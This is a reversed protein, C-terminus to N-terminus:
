KLTVARSTWTFTMWLSISVHFIYQVWCLFVCSFIYYSHLNVLSKAFSITSIYPAKNISCGKYREITKQNKMVPSTWIDTTQTKSVMYSSMLWFTSCGSYPPVVNGKSFKTNFGLLSESSFYRRFCALLLDPNYWKTNYNNTCPSHHIHSIFKHIVSYVEHWSALITINKTHM